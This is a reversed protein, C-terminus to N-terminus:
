VRERHMGKMQFTQTEGDVYMSHALVMLSTWSGHQVSYEDSIYVHFEKHVRYNPELIQSPTCEHCGPKRDQFKNFYRMEPLLVSTIRGSDICSNSQIFHWSYTSQKNHFLM